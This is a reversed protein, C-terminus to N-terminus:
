YSLVSIDQYQLLALSYESFVSTIVNRPAWQGAMSASDAVELILALGQELFTLYFTVSSSVYLMLIMERCAYTVHM